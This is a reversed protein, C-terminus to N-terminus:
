TLDAKLRGEIIQSVEENVDIGIWKRKLKKAALLTTGSGCFPDLVVDGENSSAKIIRDLLALPKQTPYSIREKSSPMIPQIEWWDEPHKGFPNQKYNDYTGSDRFSRAKYKLREVSDASYPIRVADVNFTITKGKGYRLLIDHKRAFDSKPVGGGRYCWTIENRFNGAEFIADMLLKLYHSATPDCHLYISGTDKLVRHLELMRPKMFSLYAAMPKGHTELAVQTLSNDSVEGDKWKDTFSGFDRGTCFPPDLYVLDVSVSEMERMIELNDGILLSM